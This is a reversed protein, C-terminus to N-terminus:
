KQLSVTNSLWSRDEMFPFFGQPNEERRIAAHAELHCLKCLLILNEPKNLPTVARFAGKLPIIHHVALYKGDCHACKNHYRQFCYIVAEHWCYSRRYKDRHDACCYRRGGKVRKGCFFCHGEREHGTMNYFTGYRDEGAEDGSFRRHWEPGGIKLIRPM